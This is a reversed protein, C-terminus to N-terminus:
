FDSKNFSKFIWEFGGVKIVNGEKDKKTDILRNEEDIIRGKPTILYHEENEIENQISYVEIIVNLRKAENELTTGRFYKPSIKNKMENYKTYEGLLMSEYVSHECSGGIICSCIKDDVMTEDKSVTVKVIDYLHRNFTLKAQEYDYQACMVNILEEIDEKCGHVKMQFGCYSNKNGTQVICRRYDDKHFVQFLYQGQKQWSEKEKNYELEIESRKTIGEIPSIICHEAYGIAHNFGYIEVFLQLKKSELELCTVKSQNGWVRQCLDYYSKKYNLFAEKITGSCLGTIFASYIDGDVKELSKINSELISPFHVNSSNNPVYDFVNRVCKSNSIIDLFKKVDSENGHVKMSFTSFTEM